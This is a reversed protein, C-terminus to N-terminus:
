VNANAVPTCNDKTITHHIYNQCSSFQTTIKCISKVTQHVWVPNLQSHACFFGLSFCFLNHPIVGPDAKHHYYSTTWNNQTEEGERTSGWNVMDSTYSLLEWHTTETSAHGWWHPKNFVMIKWTIYEYDSSDHMRLLFTLANSYFSDPWKTILNIWIQM